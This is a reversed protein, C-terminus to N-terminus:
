KWREVKLMSRAIRLAEMQVEIPVDPEEKIGYERDLVRSYSNKFDVKLKHRTSERNLLLLKDLYLTTEKLWFDFRVYELDSIKVNVEIRSM